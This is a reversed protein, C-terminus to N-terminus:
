LPTANQQASWKNYSEELHTMKFRYWKSEDKLKYLVSLTNDDSDFHLDVFEGLGAEKGFVRVMRIINTAFILGAKFKAAKM